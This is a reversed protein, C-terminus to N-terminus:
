GNSRTTREVVWAALQARNAAGIQRLAHSIHSRVTGMSIGLRETIAKNTLGAAVLEAIQFQRDTLGASAAPRSFPIGVLLAEVGTIRDSAMGSNALSGSLAAVTAHSGVVVAWEAQVGSPSPSRDSAGRTM